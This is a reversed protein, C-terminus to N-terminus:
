NILTKDLEKQKCHRDAFFKVKDKLYDDALIADKIVDVVNADKLLQEGFEVLLANKIINEILDPESMNIAPIIGCLKVFDDVHNTAPEISNALFEKNAFLVSLPVENSYEMNQQINEYVSSM